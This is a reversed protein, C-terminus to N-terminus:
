FYHKGPAVYKTVKFGEETKEFVKTLSTLDNRSITPPLQLRMREATAKDEVEVTTRMTKWVGIIAAQELSGDFTDGKIDVEPRNLFKRLGDVDDAIHAFLATTRVRANGLKDLSDETVGAHMLSAM